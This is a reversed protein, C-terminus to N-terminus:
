SIRHSLVFRPASATHHCRNEPTSPSGVLTYLTRLWCLIRAGEGCTIYRPSYCFFPSHHATKTTNTNTFERSCRELPLCPPLFKCGMGRPPRVRSIWFYVIGQQCTLDLYSTQFPTYIDKCVESNVRPHLKKPLIRPWVRLIVYHQIHARASASYEIEVGRLAKNKKGKL